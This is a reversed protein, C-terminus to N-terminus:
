AHYILGNLQSLFKREDEFYRSLEGRIFGQEDPSFLQQKNETFNSRDLKGALTLNTQLFHHIPDLDVQNFLRMHCQELQRVANLRITDLDQYDMGEKWGYYISFAAVEEMAHDTELFEQVSLTRMSQMKPGMSSISEDARRSHAVASLFRDMPDRLVSIVHDFSRKLYLLDSLYFHGGICAYAESSQFEESRGIYRANLTSSRILEMVATGATKPVHLFALTRSGSILRQALARYFKSKRDTGSGADLLLFVDNEYCESYRSLSLLTEADIYSIMGKHLLIYRWGNEPITAGYTDISDFGFCEPALARDDGATEQLRNSLQKYAERWYHDPYDRLALQKPSKGWSKLTPATKEM